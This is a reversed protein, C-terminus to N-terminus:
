GNIIRRLSLSFLTSYYIKLVSVVMVVYFILNGLYRSLNPRVIAKIVAGAVILLLFESCACCFVVLLVVM